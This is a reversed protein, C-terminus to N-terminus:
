CRHFVNFCYGGGGQSGYCPFVGSSVAYGQSRAERWRAWATTQTAFPGIRRWCQGQVLHFESQSLRPAQDAARTATLSSAPAPLLLISVFVCLNRASRHM